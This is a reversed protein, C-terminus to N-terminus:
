DIPPEESTYGAPPNAFDLEGTPTYERLPAPNLPAADHPGAYEQDGADAVQRGRLILWCFAAPVAIIGLIILGTV